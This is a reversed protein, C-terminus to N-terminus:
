VHCADTSGWRVAVTSNRDVAATDPLTVIPDHSSINASDQGSLVGRLVSSLVRMWSNGYPSSSWLFCDDLAQFITERSYEQRVGNIFVNGDGQVELFCIMPSKSNLLMDLLKYRHLLMPQMFHIDRKDINPVVDFVCYWTFSSADKEAVIRNPEYKVTM